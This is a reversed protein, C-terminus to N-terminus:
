ALERNLIYSSRVWTSGGNSFRVLFSEELHPAPALRDLIEVESGAPWDAIREGRRGRIRVTYATTIKTLYDLDMRQIIGSIHEM